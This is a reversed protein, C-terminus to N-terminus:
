PRSESYFNLRAFEGHMRRAARDYARAAEIEHEFRGLYRVVQKGERIGDAIQAQWLHKGKNWYVGKFRSCGRTKRANAANQRVTAIRLNKRRNDLTDTNRHDVQEGTKAGIIVRHMLVITSRRCGSSLRGSLMKTRAAYVLGKTVLAKWRHQSLYEFDQEDVITEYGKTLKITRAM